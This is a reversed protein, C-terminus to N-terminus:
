ARRILAEEVKTIAREYTKRISERTKNLRTALDNLVDTPLHRGPREPDYWRMRVTVIDRENDDLVSELIQRVVISTNPTHQSRLGTESSQEWFPAEANSENRSARGRLETEMVRQAVRGLWARVHKREGDADAVDKPVFREAAHEYIHRFVESVTEEAFQDQLDGLPSAVRRCVRFLYEAHRRYLEAWAERIVAPEGLKRGITVLLASDTEGSLNPQHDGEV